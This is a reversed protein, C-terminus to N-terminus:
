DKNVTSFAKLLQYHEKICEFINKRSVYPIKYKNCIKRVIRSIEPYHIHCVTPFLHHEIQYNMGGFLHTIIKDILSDSNSFNASSVIQQISWDKLLEPNQIKISQLNNHVIMSDHNPLIILFFISGAGTLYAINMIISVLVGYMYMPIGFMIVISVMNIINVYTKQHKKLDLWDLNFVKNFFRYNLAVSLLQNPLLFLIIWGYIHQYKYLNGYEKIKQDKSKVLINYNLDPDMSGLGTYSHHGYVHHLMWATHNWLSLNSWIMIPFWNVFPNKSLASHSGDHMVCFGICTWMIGSLFLLLINMQLIGFYYLTVWVTIM